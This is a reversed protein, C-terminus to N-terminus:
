VESGSTLARQYIRLLDATHLDPTPAIAWFAHYAAIGAMRVARDDKIAMLCRALDAADGSKFHWGTVGDEVREAAASIDSVIAPIGLAAAETVTLGFTEYWLSPFVLCRAASLHRRVQEGALWGTVVAGPSAEIEPRLPGDGVFTVPLALKAAAQLLVRVGKEEDLRGVYLIRRNAAVPVPPARTVDIPNALRYTCARAPLYPALVAASLDSLTIYHVVTSPFRGVFRQIVGRVVRFLKHAYHRKDCDTLICTGSLPRRSCPAAAEYDFFAGNPCAAFFDHLTCIVPVGLRRATRVPSTTLAKTYGHLHVVTHHRPLSRLIYGVRRGAKSNWLGQLAMAPNRLGDLLQNQNLCEVRLPANRLDACVPGVAGVFIVRIGSRALGIAEEIAVKSAGGQIYCFDNLVIVNLDEPVNM